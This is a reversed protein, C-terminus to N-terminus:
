KPSSRSAVEDVAEDGLEDCYNSVYPVVRLGAESESGSPTGITATSAPTGLARGSAQLAPSLFNSKKAHVDRARRRFANAKRTVRTVLQAHIAGAASLSKGKTDSTDGTARPNRMRKITAHAVISAVRVCATAIGTALRDSNGRSSFIANCSSGM